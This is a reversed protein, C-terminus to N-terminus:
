KKIYLNGNAVVDNVFDVYPNFQMNYCSFGDFVDSSAGGCNIIEVIDVSNLIDIIM